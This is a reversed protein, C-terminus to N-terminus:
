TEAEMVKRIDRCCANRGEAYGSTSHPNEPTIVQIARQMGQQKGKRLAAELNKAYDVCLEEAIEPSYNKTRLHQCMEEPKYWESTRAQAIADLVQQEVFDVGKSSLPINEAQLARFIADRTARAIERDTM